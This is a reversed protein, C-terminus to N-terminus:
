QAVITLKFPMHVITPTAGPEQLPYSLQTVLCADSGEITWTNENIRTVLAQHAPDFYSEDLFQAQCGYSLKLSRPGSGNEDPDIMLGSPDDVLGDPDNLFNIVVTQLMSSEEPVQWDLSCLGPRVQVQHEIRLDVGKLGSCFGAAVAGPNLGPDCAAHASFDITVWRTDNKRELQQSGNTDLRFGEGGSAVYSKPDDEPFDTRIGDDVADRFEAEFEFSCQTTAQNSKVTFFFTTGKGKRGKSASVEVEYDTVLAQPQVEITSELSDSGEWDTGDWEPDAPIFRAPGASIQTDDTSGKVLFRISAGDEFGSGVVKVTLKQGQDASSPDIGTVIVPNSGPKGALASAAFLMGLWFISIGILRTKM